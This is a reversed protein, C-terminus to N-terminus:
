LVTLILGDILRRIFDLLIMAIFPSFDLMMGGPLRERIPALVPETLQYILETIQAVWPNYGGPRIWSLIVRAFILINYVWFFTDVTQRLVQTFFFVV